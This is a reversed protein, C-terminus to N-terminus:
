RARNQEQLNGDTQQQEPFTQSIPQNEQTKSGNLSFTVAPFNHLIFQAQPDEGSCGLRTLLQAFTLAM